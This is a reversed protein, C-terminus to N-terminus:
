RGFALGFPSALGNTITFAPSQGVSFPPNYVYIQNQSANSLYMNGASDFAIGRIGPLPTTLILTAVQSGQFPTAFRYIAAGNSDVVYLFSGNVAAGRLATTFTTPINGVLPIGTYPPAFMLVPQTINNDGNTVYLNKAADFAIGYSSTIGNTITLAPTQGSSFPSTYEVVKTSQTAVFLNNSTGNPSDFADFGGSAGTPALVIAAPLAAGLPGPYYSVNGNNFSVALDGGLNLAVGVPLVTGSGVQFTATPASAASFPPTFRVVSPLTGGANAVYLNAATTVPTTTPAPTPAPSSVPPPTAGSALPAPGGIVPLKAIPGSDIAGIINAQTVPTGNYTVRAAQGPGAIAGPSVAFASSDSGLKIPSTYTGPGVITYNNADIGFVLLAFTGAVGSQPASGVFNLGIRAVVGNLTVTLPTVAGTPAPIPVLATSLLNGAGQPLSYTSISFALAGPQQVTINVACTLTGSGTSCAPSGAALDVLSTATTTVNLAGNTGVTGYLVDIKASATAPSVYKPSRAVASAPVQPVVITISYASSSPTLTAQNPVSTPSSGGGSCAALAVLLLFALIGDRHKIM